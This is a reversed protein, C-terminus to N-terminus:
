KGDLVEFTDRVTKVVQKIQSSTLAPFMPLSIERLFFDLAKPCKIKSYGNNQYYPHMYVPMYHVQVGLGSDRLKSFIDDRKAKLKDKLRIPYLHYSSIVGDKELPLDFYPNNGFESNYIGAIERRRAVFKDLKKLQSTGLACQIDALRYNFGLQHMEYHWAGNGKNVMLEEDKTVGHTRLMMLKQYLQKNNTLIAGGEGTTIHKVPHFSFVTMDAYRGCGIKTSKYSAGLAHCADDIVILGKSKAIKSIKTWDCAHGAYDVAIIAKTNKTINKEIQVPDINATESRVDVFVPKAGAYMVCNASALFTLPSVIVEDGSGIGAALVSLHLAATGSSVAVAYKAGTYDCLCKEFDNVCPGQTLWDSKLVRIVAKVDSENISQHSYPIFEM